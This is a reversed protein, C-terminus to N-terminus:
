AAVQRGSRDSALEPHQRHIQQLEPGVFRVAAADCVADYLAKALPQALRMPKSGIGARLERRIADAELGITSLIPAIDLLQMASTQPQFSLSEAAKLTFRRRRRFPHEVGAWWYHDTYAEVSDVMPDDPSMANADRWYTKEEVYFVVDCLLRSFNPFTDGSVWFCIDGIEPSMQTIHCFSHLFRRNWIYPDQNGQTSDHYIIPDGFRSCSREPHYILWGSM